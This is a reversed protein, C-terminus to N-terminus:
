IQESTAANEVQSHPIQALQLAHAGLSRQTYNLGHNRHQVGRRLGRGRVRDGRPEGRESVVVGGVLTCREGGRELVRTRMGGVNWWRM